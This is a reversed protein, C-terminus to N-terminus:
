LSSLETNTKAILQTSISATTVGMELKLLRAKDVQLDVVNCLARKWAECTLIHSREFQRHGMYVHVANVLM